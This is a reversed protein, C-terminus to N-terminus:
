KADGAEGTFYMYLGTFVMLVFVMPVSLMNPVCSITVSHHVRHTVVM